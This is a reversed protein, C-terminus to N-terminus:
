RFLCVRLCHSCASISALARADSVVGRILESSSYHEWRGPSRGRAAGVNTSKSGSVKRIDNDRRHVGRAGWRRNAPMGRM